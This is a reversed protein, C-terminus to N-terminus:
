IYVQPGAQEAVRGGNVGVALVVPRRCRDVMLLGRGIDFGPAFHGTRQQRKPAAMADDLTTEIGQRFPSLDRRRYIALRQRTPM